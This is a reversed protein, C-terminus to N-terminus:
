LIHRRSCEHIFFGLPLTQSNPESECGLFYSHTVMSVIAKSLVVPTRTKFSKVVALRAMERHQPVKAVPCVALEVVVLALPLSQFCTSAAIPRGPCICGPSTILNPIGRFSRCTVSSPTSILGPSANPEHAANLCSPPLAMIM